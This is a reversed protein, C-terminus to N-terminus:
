NDRQYNSYQPKSLQLVQWTELKSQTKYGRKHEFDKRIFDLENFIDMDDKSTALDDDDDDEEQCSLLSGVM